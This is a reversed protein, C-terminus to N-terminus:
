GIDERKTEPIWIMTLIKNKVDRCVRNRMMITLLILVGAQVDQDYLIWLSPDFWCKELGPLRRLGMRVWRKRCEFYPRQDLPSDGQHRGRTVEKRAERLDFCLRNIEELTDWDTNDRHSGPLINTKTIPVKFTKVDHPTSSAQKVNWRALQKIPPTPDFHSFESFVLNRVFLHMEIEKLPLDPLAEIALLVPDSLKNGHGILHCYTSVFLQIL